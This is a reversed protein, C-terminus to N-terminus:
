SNHISGAYYGLMGTMITFAVQRRYEPTELKAAEEPNSLFGCEAMVAPTDTKDLLFLEDDVPKTERENEPQLLQVFQRQMAAALREGGSNRRSYFMQAGSYRSDTFQNQHISVAAGKCSDFVALRNKMDSQKQKALGTVGEDYVSRDDERTMTVEWGMITLLERETLAIDLNIGKEATGNVSVCGGDMGGHGADLAVQPREAIPSSVAASIREQAKKGAADGAWVMGALLLFIGCCAATRKIIKSNM